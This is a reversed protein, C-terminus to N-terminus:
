GADAVDRGGRRRAPAALVMELLAAVLAAVLVAGALDARRAAGYLEREMGADDLLRADAGVAAQLEGRSAPTLRSERRDHNVELVGVTDGRVGELFYAGATLPAAFRRDAPAGVVRDPFRVRHVASPLLVTAGLSARVVWSERAAVRNLLRDVFPVFAASVPLETWAETLRSAVLIVGGDRVLWPDGGATALVRGTGELRYRRYVAAGRGADLEGGLVWSGDLQDGFRWAVGRAALARNLAGILTPDAPPFVVTTGPGPRDSLLVNAGERLRGGDLLVEIAEALFAGLDADVRVAAPEAVRVGLWWQDDARLEDADLEVRLARWGARRPAVDLVVQEGATAVARALEGGESVLRVGAPGDVAGGVAAVVRGAPSWIEPEAYATDISRNPPGGPSQWLLTRWTRSPAPAGALATAQLDSVVVVERQPLGAAAVAQGAVRVAGALDLRVPAPRVSDLAALLDARSVARPAGDALVLWLRDDARAQLAVRRARAVLVDLVTRGETVAGASLSNDLVLALATPAHARGVGLTAVPRAAALVLLVIVAMRLLLLLLHRLKLRHSHERETATLYQVAPFVVTPPTRRGILHLLPPLAAAVLGLLALPQLFGIM